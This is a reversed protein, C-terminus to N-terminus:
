MRTLVVPVFTVFQPSADGSQLETSAVTQEVYGTDDIARAEVLCNEPVVAQTLGFDITFPEYSSNFTGDTPTAPWWAGGNIRFEVGTVTAGARLHYALGSIVAAPEDSAEQALYLETNLGGDLMGTTIFEVSAMNESRNGVDDIAVAELQHGGPPVNDITFQFEDSTGSIGADISASQWAGGDIRYEIAALQNITIDGRVPSPFPVVEVNGTVTVSTEHTAAGNITVPLSVDLPDPIDDGDSDRWGVQGAGYEDLANNRYPSVQGRMISATNSGCSGYQSNQNEVYLYGSKSTCGWGASAYQDLAWFIHGMEHAAVADMNAAGYGNNGSTMVMFPGGLYAYAFYGDTFKNDADASSDVVFITFAWDTGVTDRLENNYDRVQSFIDVRDYGLGRMADGIWDSQSVDGWYDIAKHNIPEVGTPLPTTFHDDYVFSLNAAPNLEAWWNTANVIESFVQQREDETWNETSPEVTGDSEVLVIGVAISGAMFESTQYYGPTVSVSSVSFDDDGPDPLDPAVFADQHLQHQQTALQGMQPEAETQQLSNWVAAIRRAEAGYIDMQALEVTNTFIATVGPYGDLTEFASVPVQAFVARAPFTHTTKGGVQTVIQHSTKVTVDPKLLIFVAQDPTDAFVPVWWNFALFLITVGAFLFRFFM